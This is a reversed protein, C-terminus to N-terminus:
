IKFRLREGRERVFVFLLVVFAVLALSFYTANFGVVVLMQHWGDNM